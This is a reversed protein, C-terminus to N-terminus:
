IRVGLFLSMNWKNTKLQLEDAQGVTIENYKMNFGVYYRHFYHLIGFRGVSMIPPWKYPFRKRETGITTKGFVYPVVELMADFHILWHHASVWNYGYGGGIAAYFLRFKLQDPDTNVLKQIDVLMLTGGLLGSGASRRQIWSQDFVAPMAFRKWRFAYYGNLGYITQRISGKPINLPEDLLDECKFKGSFTEASHFIVDGGFRDNYASLSFDIDHNKGGIHLPSFSFGVSLGRYCLSLGISTKAQANLPMSFEYNDDLYGNLTMNAGTMNFKTGIRLKEGPKIMYNTDNPVETNDFFHSM